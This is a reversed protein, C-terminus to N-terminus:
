RNLYIQESETRLGCDWSCAPQWTSLRLMCRGDHDGGRGHHWLVPRNVLRFVDERSLPAPAPAVEHRVSRAAASRPPPIPESHHNRRERTAAHTTPSLASRESVQRGVHRHASIGHALLLYACRFSQSAAIEVRDRAVTAECCPGFM